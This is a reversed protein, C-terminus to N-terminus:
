NWDFSMLIVLITITKTKNSVDPLSVRLRLNGTKTM